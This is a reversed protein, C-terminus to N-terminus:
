REFGAYFYTNTLEVNNVTFYLSYLKHNHLMIDYYNGQPKIDNIIIIKRGKRKYVNNHVSVSSRKSKVYLWM